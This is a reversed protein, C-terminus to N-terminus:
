SIFDRVNCLRWLYSINGKGLLIFKRGRASNEAGSIFYMRGGFYTEVKINIAVNVEM